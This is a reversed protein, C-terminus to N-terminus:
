KKINYTKISFKCVRKGKGFRVEGCWVRVLGWGVLGKGYRVMGSRVKIM